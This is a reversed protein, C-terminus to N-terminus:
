PSSVFTVREKKGVLSALNSGPKTPFVNLEHAAM